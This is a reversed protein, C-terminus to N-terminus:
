KWFGERPTTETLALWRQLCNDIDTWVNLIAKEHPNPNVLLAQLRPLVEGLAEVGAHRGARFIFTM